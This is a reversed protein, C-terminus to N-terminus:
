TSRTQADSGLIDGLFEAYNEIMKDLTFQEVVRRRAALGMEAAVGAAMTNIICDVLAETDHPPFLFGSRGPEVIESAGGLDSLIAPLAMAMGELAALSFTEVAVSTLVCVDSARLYPRVDRHEGCFVVSDSVGLDRAIQETEVRLPGGGILLVLINRGRAQLEACAEIIQRHNKEPAFRGTLSVIFAGPPLRLSRRADAKEELSPPSFTSTDVGNQIALMRPASLKQTQWYSKQNQSVFIIGDSLAICLYFIPLKLRSFKANILTTHFVCVIKAQHLGFLRTLVSLVLTTQNVALVLEIRRGKILQSLARWGSPRFISRESLMSVDAPLDAVPFNPAAVGLYVALHAPQGFRPLLRAMQAAHREAGGVSLRDLLVLTSM